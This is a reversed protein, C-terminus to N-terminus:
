GQKKLPALVARDEGVRSFSAGAMPHGVALADGKLSPSYPDGSTSRSAHTPPIM